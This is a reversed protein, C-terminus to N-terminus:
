GKCLAKAIDVGERALKWPATTKELKDRASSFVSLATQAMPALSVRDVGMKDRRFSILDVYSYARIVDTWARALQSSAGDRTVVYSAVEMVFAAGLKRADDRQRRAPWREMKSVMEEMKNAMKKDGAKCFAAAANKYEELAVDAKKGDPDESWNQLWAHAEASLKTAEAWLRPQAEATIVKMALAACTMPGRGAAYDGEAAARIQANGLLIQAEAWKAPERRRSVSQLVDEACAAARKLFGDCNVGTLDSSMDPYRRALFLLSEIRRPLHIEPPCFELLREHYEVLLEAVDFEGDVLATCFAKICVYLWPGDRDARLNDYHNV